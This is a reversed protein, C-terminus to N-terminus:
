PQVPGHHILGFVLILKEQLCGIYNLHWKKLSIKDQPGYLFSFAMGLLILM